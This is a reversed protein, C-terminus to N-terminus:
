DVSAFIVPLSTPSRFVQGRIHPDADGPNLTRPTVSAHIGWGILVIAATSSVLVLKTKRDSNM